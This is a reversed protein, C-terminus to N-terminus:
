MFVYTNIAYASLILDLYNASICRACVKSQSCEPHVHSMTVIKPIFAILFQLEGITNYTKLIQGMQKVSVECGVQIHLGEREGPRQVDIVM